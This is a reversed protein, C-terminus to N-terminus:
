QPVAMLVFALARQAKCTLNTGFLMATEEVMYIGEIKVMIKM